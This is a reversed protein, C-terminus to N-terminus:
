LAWIVALEEPLAFGSTKKLGPFYRAWAQPVMAQQCWRYKGGWWYHIHYPHLHSLTNKDSQTWFGLCMLMVEKWTLCLRHIVPRLFRVIICIPKQRSVAGAPLYKHSLFTKILQVIVTQLEKLWELLLQLLVSWCSVTPDSCFVITEVLLEGRLLM